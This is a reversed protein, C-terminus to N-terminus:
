PVGGGLTAGHQPGEAGGTQSASESAHLAAQGEACCLPYLRIGCQSGRKPGCTTRGAHRGSRSLPPFGRRYNAVDKRGPPDRRGPDNKGPSARGIDLTKFGFVLRASPLNGFGDGASHEELLRSRAAVPSQQPLIGLRESRHEQLIGQTGSRVPCLGRPGEPMHVGPCAADGVTSGRLPSAGASELRAQSGGGVYVARPSVRTWRIRTGRPAAGVGNGLFPRSEDRFDERRRGMRAGALGVSGFPRRCGVRRQRGGGCGGCGVQLGLPEVLM